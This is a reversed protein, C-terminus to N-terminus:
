CFQIYIYKPSTFINTELFSCFCLSHCHLPKQEGTMQLGLLAMKITIQSIRKSSQLFFIYAPETFFHIFYKYNFYSYEILRDISYLDTM